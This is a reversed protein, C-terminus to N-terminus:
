DILESMLCKSLFYRTHGLPYDPLQGFIKYGCKEYFGQAQFSFTDVWANTCANRRAENEAAHLVRRGLGHGRANDAVWLTDVFMWGYSLKALLGAVIKDEPSISTVLFSGHRANEVRSRNFERLRQQLWAVEAAGPDAQIRLTYPM